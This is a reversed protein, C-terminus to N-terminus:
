NGWTDRDLARYGIAEAIHQPAIQQEGALDAITREVKVIRDYARASLNFREMARRLLDGSQPSLACFTRLQRSNMMSNTHVSTGEFRESQIRRAAMVRQRITVSSEEDGSRSLESFEVPIVEIHMDIRDLLPGSLRNLYKFM